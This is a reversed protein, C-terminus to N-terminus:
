TIPRRRGPLTLGIRKAFRSVAMSVAVDPMKYRGHRLGPWERAIDRPRKGAFGVLATWEAHLRLQRPDAAGGSLVTRLYKVYDTLQADIETKVRKRFEEPDEISAQAKLVSVAKQETNMLQQSGNATGIMKPYPETLKPTFPPIGFGGEDLQRWYFWKAGELRAALSDPHAKWYAITDAIVEIMWADVVCASACWPLLVEDGSVLWSKRLGDWFRPVDHQLAQLFVYRAVAGATATTSMETLGAKVGFGAGCNRCRLHM